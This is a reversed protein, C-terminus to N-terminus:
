SANPGAKIIIVSYCRDSLKNGVVLGSLGAGAVIYDFIHGGAVLSDTTVVTCSSVSAHLGPFWVLLSWFLGSFM